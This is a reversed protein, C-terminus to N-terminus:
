TPSQHLGVRSQQSHHSTSHHSVDPVSRKIKSNMAKELNQRDREKCTLKLAEMKKMLIETGNPLKSYVLKAKELLNELEEQEVFHALKYRICQEFRYAYEFIFM